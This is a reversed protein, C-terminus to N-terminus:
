KLATKASSIAISPFHNKFIKTVRPRDQLRSIVEDHIMGLQHLLTATGELDVLSELSDTVKATGVDLM